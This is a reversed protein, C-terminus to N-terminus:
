TSSPLAATMRLLQVKTDLSQSLSQILFRSNPDKALAQKCQAIASDIVALNKQLVAVTASDLAGHRQAIITRLGAIEGDYSKEVAAPTAAAARNAAMRAEATGASPAAASPQPELAAPASDAAGPMQTAVRAAPEASP